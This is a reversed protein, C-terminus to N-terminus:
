AAIIRAPNAGIEAMDAFLVHRADAGLAERLRAIKEATLVVFVPDAGEIGDRIFRLMGSLFEDSDRYLFAEHVFAQDQHGVAVTMLKLTEQAVRRGQAGITDPEGNELALVTDLERPLAHLRAWRRQPVPPRKGTLRLHLRPAGLDSRLRAGARVPRLRHRRRLSASRPRAAGDGDRDLRGRM